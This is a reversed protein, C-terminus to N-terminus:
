SRDMIETSLAEWLLKYWGIYRAFGEELPWRPEYGILRRAKDVSLTGRTPMLPDRPQYGLRVDFLHEALIEAMRRVPRAQGYTLNFIQNKAAESVLVRISGQVLDDIYTFDLCDSGDGRVTLERGRLCGEIFVQGVRRSICREGYLASPRVITFPLGFVQNYAIVIKEGALKLAGYIGVPECPSKETVCGNRFNGYVLSSSFFIFHGVRPMRSRAVELANELTRLGHDIAEMPHANSRGVHAVAALHILTDPDAANVAESLRLRDRADVEVVPINGGALLGLRDRVMWLALDTEPGAGLEAVLSRANNVALHDIVTVEAGFDRFRLALHHGVFGAGGVIAIRRGSLMEITSGRRYAIMEPTHILIPFRGAWRAPSGPVM